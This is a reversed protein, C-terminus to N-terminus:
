ICLKVARPNDRDHCCSLDIGASRGEAHRNGEFDRGFVLCLEVIDVIVIVYGVYELEFADELDYPEAVRRRVLLSEEDVGRDIEERPFVQM